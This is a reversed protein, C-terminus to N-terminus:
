LGSRVFPLHRRHDPCRFPLIQLLDPVPIEPDPLPILRLNQVLETGDAAVVPLIGDSQQRVAGPSGSCLWPRSSAIPRFQIRDDTAEPQGALLDAGLPKLSGNRQPQRMIFSPMPHQRRRQATLQKGDTSRAQVPPQLRDPSPIRVALMAAGFGSAQEFLADGNARVVPVDVPGAEDLGVGNRM